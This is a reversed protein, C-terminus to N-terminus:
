VSFEWMSINSYQIDELLKKNSSEYFKCEDIIRNTNRWPDRQTYKTFTTFNHAGCFMNAVEQVVNTNLESSVIHCRNVESIPLYEEYPAKISFETKIEPKLIALRYIYSRWKANHRAHFIDPVVCTSTVLIEHNNTKLYSNLHKTIVYPQFVKGSISHVLDVHFSNVLAHVGKDTRSAFSSLPINSPNLSKLASEIVGQITENPFDPTKQSGRSFM